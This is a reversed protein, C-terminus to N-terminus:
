RRKRALMEKLMMVTVALWFMRLSSAGLINIDTGRFDCFFVFFRRCHNHKITAGAGGGVASLSRPYIKTFLHRQRQYFVLLYGRQVCAAVVVLIFVLPFSVLEFLTSSKTTTTTTKKKWKQKACALLLRINLEHIASFCRPFPFSM